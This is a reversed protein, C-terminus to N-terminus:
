GPRGVDKEKLLAALLADASLVADPVLRGALAIRDVARADLPREAVHLLTALVRVPDVAQADDAEPLLAEGLDTAVHQPSGADGAVAGVVRLAVGDFHAVLDGDHQLVRERSRAPLQERAGDVPEDA